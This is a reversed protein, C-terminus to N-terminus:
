EFTAFDGYEEIAAKRYAQEAEQATAYSGLHIRKGNRGINAIYSKGKKCVGKIGLKNDKRAGFNCVNQSHTAKRLNSFKNNSKNRDDHDIELDGPDEGTVICWAVRHAGYSKGNIKLKTYRGPETAGAILDKRRGKGGKKWKFLGTEPDYDFIKILEAQSPLPNAKM